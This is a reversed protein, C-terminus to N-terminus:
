YYTIKSITKLGIAVAGYQHVGGAGPFREYIRVGEDVSKAFPLLTRLGEKTIMERFSAYRHLYTIECLLYCVRNHLKLSDGARMQSVQSRYVRGEATKIGKEIWELYPYDRSNQVPLSHTRPNPRDSRRNQVVDPKGQKAPPELDPREEHLRKVGRREGEEIQERDRVPRETVRVSISAPNSVSRDRPSLRFRAEEAVRTVKKDEESKRDAVPSQSVPSHTEITSSLRISM